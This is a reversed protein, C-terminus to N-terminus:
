FSQDNSPKVTDIFKGFVETVFSHIARVIRLECGHFNIYRVLIVIPHHSKTFFQQLVTGHGYVTGGFSFKALVVNIKFCRVFPNGHGIGNLFESTKINSSFCFVFDPLSGNGHTNFYIFGHTFALQYIFNKTFFALAM